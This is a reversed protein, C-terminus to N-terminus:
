DVFEANHYVNQVDDHEELADLLGQLRDAQDPPVAVSQGAVLTVEASAPQFGAAAVAKRVAEFSSPECVVVFAGEESQVDEAGAEIAHEMLRGEDVGASELMIIGQQKFMWAVSAGMNGGGKEFIKRLEPATRNRNDTLIEVLVAVGGPGFGEYMASEYNAGDEGGAGKRIAKDITDNPMNAARAKECAIRLTPNFDPNPGGNKAAVTVARSLKSWAKGRKADIVAKKRKINKWHSHGAM